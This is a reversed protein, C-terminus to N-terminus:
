GTQGKESIPSQMFKHFPLHPCTVAIASLDLFQLAGDHVVSVIWQLSEDFVDIDDSSPYWIDSFYIDLDCLEIEDIKDFRYWNVYVIPNSYVGLSELTNKLSFEPDEANASAVVVSKANLEKTLKLDDFVDGLGVKTALRNRISSVRAESLPTIRPFDSEPNERKFIAIKFQDM